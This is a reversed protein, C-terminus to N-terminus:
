KNRSAIATRRFRSRGLWILAVGIGFMGLSAPEPAVTVVVGSLLDMPPQGSPTGLSLFTLVQTSSSATFNLTQGAWAQFGGNILGPTSTGAINPQTPTDQITTGNAAAQTLQAANELSVQWGETTNGTFSYQQAAGYWFSVSYTLGATLNNLTQYIAVQYGAAGDAAIFNGGAPSSNPIVGGSPTSGAVNGPDYVSFNGFRGTLNVGDNATTTSGQNGAFYLLALGTSGSVDAITWNTLSGGTTYDGQTNLGGGATGFTGTTTTFTGNSIISAQAAPEFGTCAVLLCGLITKGWASSIQSGRFTDTFTSM